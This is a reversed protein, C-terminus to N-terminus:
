VKFNTHCCSETLGINQTTQHSKKHGRMGLNGLHFLVRKNKFSRCNFEGERASAEKAEAYRGMIFLVSSARAEGFGCCDVACM